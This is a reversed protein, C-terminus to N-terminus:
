ANATAIPVGAIELAPLDNWDDGIYGTAALPIGTDDSLRQLALHKDRVGQLVLTVGLEKARREVGHHARGSLWAVEIGIQQLLVIGLGDSVHFRKLEGGQSDYILAGDTLVGDVDM